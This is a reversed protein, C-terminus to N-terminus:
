AAALSEDLLRALGYIARTSPVPVQLRDAIEVVASITESTQRQTSRQLGRGRRPTGHDLM